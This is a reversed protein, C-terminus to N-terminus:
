KIAQYLALYPADGLGVAFGVSLRIHETKIFTRPFDRPFGSKVLLSSLVPGVVPLGSFKTDEESSVEWSGPSPISALSSSFSFGVPLLESMEPLLQLKAVGPVSYQTNSKQQQMQPKSDVLM